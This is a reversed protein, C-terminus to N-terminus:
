AGAHAAVLRYKGEAVNQFSFRGDSGTTATCAQRPDDALRLEVTADPLTENSGYRVVVGEISASGPEQPTMATAILSLLPAPSSGLEPGHRRMSARERPAAARVGDM